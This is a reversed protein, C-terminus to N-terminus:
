EVRFSSCELIRIHLHPRSQHTQNSAACPNSTSLPRQPSSPLSGGASDTHGSPVTPFTRAAKRFLAGAGSPVCRAQSAPIWSPPQLHSPWAPRPGERDPGSSTLVSTQSLGERWLCQGPTFGLSVDVWFSLVHGKKCM